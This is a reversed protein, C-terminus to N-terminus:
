RYQVVLNGLQINQKVAVLQISAFSSSTNSNLWVSLADFSTETQTISALRELGASKVLQECRPDDIQVTVECAPEVINGVFHIETGDAAYCGSYCTIALFIPFLHKCNNKM